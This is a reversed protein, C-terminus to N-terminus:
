EAQRQRYRRVKAKNGCGKMDCWRRSHNRTTDLYLWSCADSACQRLLPQDEMTLLDAAAVVVPWLVADLVITARSEGGTVGKLRWVWTWAAGTAGTTVRRHAFARALERNLTALDASRPADGRMQAVVLAYIAERLRQARELVLMAAAPDLRAARVLRQAEDPTIISAQEEWAVLDAYSAILERTTGGRLGGLTNAFDLALRGGIFAFREHAVPRGRRQQTRNRGEM